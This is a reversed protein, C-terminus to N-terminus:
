KRKVKKSVSTQRGQNKRLEYTIVEEISVGYILSGEFINTFFWMRFKFSESVSIWCILIECAAIILYIWSMTSFFVGINLLALLLLGLAINRLMVSDAQFRDINQSTEVSRQRLFVFLAEWDKSQFKIGLNPYKEKIIQLSKSTAGQRDRIRYIFQFFFRLSIPDFIHGIVYAGLLIPILLVPGPAQGAQFWSEINIFKSGLVRLFENIVYLYLFGPILYSFFDYFGLNVSM